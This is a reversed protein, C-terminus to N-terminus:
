FVFVVDNTLVRFYTCNNSKFCDSLDSLVSKLLQNFVIKDFYGRLTM